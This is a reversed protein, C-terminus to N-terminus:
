DSAGSIQWTRIYTVNIEMPDHVKILELQNTITTIGHKQERISFYTPTHVPFPDLIVVVEDVLEYGFTM